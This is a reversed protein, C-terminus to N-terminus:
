AGGKGMAVRQRYFELEYALQEIDKETNNIFNEIHLTLGGGSNSGKAKEIARAMLEDLRDIPLVAETGAEGVGIVSPRNFIGGKAYWNVALHPVQPPALSFEGELSFHPLKIHPLKINLGEFFGKIKDIEEGVFNVAATIPSM